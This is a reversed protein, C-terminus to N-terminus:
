SRAHRAKGEQDLVRGREVPQIRGRQRQGRRRASDIQGEFAQQLRQLEVAALRRARGSQEIHQATPYLHQGCVQGAGDAILGADQGGGQIGADSVQGYQGVCQRRRRGGQIRAGLGAREGVHAHERREARREVGHRLIVDARSRQQM